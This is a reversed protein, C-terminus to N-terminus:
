CGQLGESVRRATGRGMGGRSLRSEARRGCLGRWEKFTGPGKGAGAEACAAREAQFGGRGPRQSGIGVWRDPGVQFNVEELFKLWAVLLLAPRGMGTVDEQRASLVAQLYTNTRTIKHQHRERDSSRSSRRGCSHHM